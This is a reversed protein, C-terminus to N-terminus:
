TSSRGPPRGWGGVAAASARLAPTKDQRMADAFFPVLKRQYDEQKIERAIEQARARVEETPDNVMLKGIAEVTGSQNKGDTLIFVAVGDLAKLRM